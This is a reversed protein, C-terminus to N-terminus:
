SCLDGTYAIAGSETGATLVWAARVTYSITRTADNIGFSALVTIPTGLMYALGDAGLMYPVVSGAAISTSNPMTYSSKDAKVYATINPLGNDAGAIDCPDLSITAGGSYASARGYRVTEVSGAAGGFRIVCWILGTTGQKYLISAAGTSGSALYPNGDSVDACTHTSNTINIRVACTGCAYALGLEGDNVPEALIVFKGLHDPLTPTDITFVPENRFSTLTTGTAPFVVGSIGMVTSQVQSDGSDNRVVVLTRDAAHGGHASQATQQQRAWMITDIMANYTKAPIVLPEGSRVKQFSDGNDM